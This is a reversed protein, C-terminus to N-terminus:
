LNIKKHRLLISQLVGQAALLTVLASGGYSVFPLPIGTVPMLGLNMGINVFIQFLLIAAVGTAILEGYRDRALDAVRITRWLLVGFVLLLAVMGVFGFEEGIVSAIFDTHQVRLYRLQSQSGEMYGQGTLGGAGVSIRAQIMNYGSDLASAEPDLFALVRTVQYPKLLYRWALFGVPAMAVALALLYRLRTGSVLIMGLWIAGLVMSTGLDPQKFILALPLGILLLSALFPVLPSQKRPREALVWALVLVMLLKSLESPQVTFPGLDFWRTSGLTTRGVVFIMALLILTSIYIVWTWNTLFRYDISALLAMLALGVVLYIAQKSVLGARGSPNLESTASYIMLLGFGALLLTALLM